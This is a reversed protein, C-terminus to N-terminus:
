DVEILFSGDDKKIKDLKAVDHKKTVGTKVLALTVDAIESLMESSAYHNVISPGNVVVIDYTSSLRALLSAFGKSAIMDAGFREDRECGIVHLTSNLIKITSTAIDGNAICGQLSVDGAPIITNESAFPNANVMITNRGSLVMSAALNYATREIAAFDDTTGIISIIKGPANKLRELSLLNGRLNRVRKAELSEPANVVAPEDKESFPIDGIVSQGGSLMVAQDMIVVKRSIIWKGLIFAVPILLGLIFFVGLIIKSSMGLISDTVYAEDIIVGRPHAGAIAMETEERQQLLFVYLQEKLNQQRLINSYEIEISPMTELKSKSQAYQRRLENIEFSSSESQKNLAALLNDRVAEIRQNIGKLAQNDGKASTELSLRYLILDNYGNILPTLSAISPMIPLMSTNNAENTLFEIAMTLLEYQSEAKILEVEQKTTQQLYIGAQAEPNVMDKQGMFEEVKMQTSDVEAAFRKIREELFHLTKIHFARKQAITLENYNNVLTNIVSKGFAADSTIFNLTMIDTKKASFDVTIMKSLLSAAADYSVLSITEYVEKGPIYSATQVLTFSGYPIEIEHPLKVNKTRYIVKNKKGRVKIDTLGNKDTLLEFRLPVGLTDAINKNYVIQLPQNYYIPEEKFFNRKVIYSENIGLEEVTKKLLSHSKIIVMEDEISRNSGFSSSGGFVSAIDGLTSAQSSTEDSVLVQALVECQTIRKKYVYLGFLLLVAVSVIVWKWNKRYASILQPINIFSNKQQQNEAM